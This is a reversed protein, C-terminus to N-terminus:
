DYKINNSDLYKKAENIIMICTPADCEGIHINANIGFLQMNLYKYATAKDMINSKVLADIYRHAQARMERTKRNAPTSLLYLKNGVKEVKARIDCDNCILLHYSSNQYQKKELNMQKGCKPCCMNRAIQKNIKTSLSARRNTNEANFRDSRRYSNQSIRKSM